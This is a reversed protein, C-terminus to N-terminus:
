KMLFVSTKIGFILVKEHFVKILDISFITEGEAQFLIALARIFLTFMRGTQVM